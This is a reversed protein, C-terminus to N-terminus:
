TSDPLGFALDWGNDTGALLLGNDVIPGGTVGRAVDVLCHHATLM